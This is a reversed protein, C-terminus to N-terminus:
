DGRSCWRMAGWVCPVSARVQAKVRQAEALEEAGPRLNAALHTSEARAEVDRVKNMRERRLRAAEKRRRQEEVQAAARETQM